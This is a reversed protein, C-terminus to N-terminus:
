SNSQMKREKKRRQEADIERVYTCSAKTERLQIERDIEGAIERERERGKMSEINM